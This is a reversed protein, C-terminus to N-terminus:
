GDSGPEFGAVALGDLSLASPGARARDVLLNRAIRFLWAGFPAGREDYGAIGELARRFVQATIDEADAHSRVRRYAYRYVKQVFRDYLRAFADPDRGALRVLEAEEANQQEWIDPAVITQMRM